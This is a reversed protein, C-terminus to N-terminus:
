FINLIRYNLRFKTQIALGYLTTITQLWIWQSCICNSAHACVFINKWHREINRIAREFYNHLIFLLFLYMYFACFSFAFCIDTLFNNSDFLQPNSDGPSFWFLEGVPIMSVYVYVCAIPLTWFTNKLTLGFRRNDEWLSQRQQCIGVLGNYRPVRGICAVTQTRSAM